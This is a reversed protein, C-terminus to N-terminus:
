RAATREELDATAELELQRSLEKPTRGAQVLEVLQGRSEPAV